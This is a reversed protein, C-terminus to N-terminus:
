RDNEEGDSNVLDLSTYYDDLWERVATVWGSPANDWDGGYASAILGRALDESLRLRDVEAVVQKMMGFPNSADIEMDPVTTSALGVARVFESLQDNM